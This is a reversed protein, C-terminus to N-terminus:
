VFPGRVIESTREGKGSTPGSKVFFMKQTHAENEIKILRKNLNAVIRILQEMQLEMRVSNKNDTTM